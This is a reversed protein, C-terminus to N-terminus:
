GREAIPPPNWRGDLAEPRPSYLRMIIRLPGAPAPLWNATRAGGPDTPGYYLDLSGDDGYHLLDRDGLAFRDLPNPAQFSDHDYMTVSWFADVPPLLGPEFHQVYDREGVIPRGAADAVALPYVADEPQNAGLGVVAVAARKLYFDGYVGMSDTNMAWGNTIRAMTAIARDHRQRADQAGRELAALQDDDFASADFDAGRVIGLAELRALVSFDTAQPAHVALLRAAYGFYDAASLGNVIALPEGTLDLGEPALSEPLATSPAEGDLGSLRLGDQFQRVSAYDAPGNTQVRGILWVHPTPADIRRAGEPAEGDWGPPAILFRGAATGTTRKGPVAFANTWMDLLPLLYYRGASDPVELLIPGGSLDLWASSYLTDFNPAVVARFGADPFARAHALTNTPGRGISASDGPRTFVSRTVDMTVLPYFYTYAEAARAAVEDPSLAIM